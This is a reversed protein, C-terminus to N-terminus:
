DKGSWGIRQLAYKVAHQISKKLVYIYIYIYKKLIVSIWLVVEKEFSDDIGLVGYFIIKWSLM